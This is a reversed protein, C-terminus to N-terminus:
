SEFSSSLCFLKRFFYFFTEQLVDLADQREGVVAAFDNRTVPREGTTRIQLAIAIHQHNGVLAQQRQLVLAHRSIFRDGRVATM